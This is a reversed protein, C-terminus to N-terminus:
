EGVPIRTISVRHLVFDSEIGAVYALAKAAESFKRSVEVLDYCLASPDFSYYAVKVIYYSLSKMILFLNLKTFYLVAVYYLYQKM